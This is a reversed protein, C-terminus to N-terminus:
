KKRVNYYICIDKDFAGESTTFDISNDSDVIFTGNDAGGWGLNFFLYLNYYKYFDDGSGTKKRKRIQYGDILWSHSGKDNAGRILVIHMDDLSAKIKSASITKQPNDMIINYRSLFRIANDTFTNGGCSDYTTKTEESIYKILLSVQNIKGYEISFINERETLWDWDISTGKVSINPKIYAMIQATSIVACGAPYRSRYHFGKYLECTDMLINYPYGQDWATQTLPGVQAVLVGEPNTLGRTQVASMVFIKDKIDNFDKFDINLENKIKQKAKQQLYGIEKTRKKIINRMANISLEKLVGIETSNISSTKYNCIVEPFLSEGCVIATYLEVGKKYRITYYCTTDKAISIDKNATITYQIDDLGRTKGDSNHLFSKLINCAEDVPINKTNKILLSNYEDPTLSVKLGNTDLVEKDNDACSIFFISIFIWCAIKIYNM